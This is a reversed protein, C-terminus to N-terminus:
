SQYHYNDKTNGIEIQISGPAYKYDVNQMLKPDFIKIVFKRILAYGKLGDSGEESNIPIKYTLWENTNSDASGSSSWFQNYDHRNVTRHM